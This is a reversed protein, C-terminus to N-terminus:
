RRTDPTIKSLKGNGTGKGDPGHTRSQIWQGVGHTHRGSAPSCGSDPKRSTIMGSGPPSESRPLAQGARAIPFETRNQDKGSGGPQASFYQGGGNEPIIQPFISAATATENIM